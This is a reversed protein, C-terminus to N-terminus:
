ENKAGRKRRWEGKHRHYGCEILADIMIQDITKCYEIMAAEQERAATRKSRKATNDFNRQQKTLDDIDACLEAFEGTGVYERIVRGDVKKSRTYYADKGRRTEWAM